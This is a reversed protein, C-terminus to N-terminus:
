KSYYEVILQVNVNTDIDDRSPISIIRAKLNDADIELWGPVRKEKLTEKSAQIFPIGQTKEKLAISQKPKVLYSSVNVKRGDVLVHGHCVLQRAQKRSNALGLRYLVNDLRTELIKLFNEGAIGKQREAALFYNKFQKEGIGYIRRLKQKERLQIAYQSIKRRAQAHQGPPYARRDIGCKSSLCRDGKLMLKTGERRCLKCNADVYRSM